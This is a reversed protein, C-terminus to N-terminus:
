SVKVIKFRLCVSLAWFRASCKRSSDTSKKRISRKVLSEGLLQATLPHPPSFYPHMGKITFPSFPSRSLRDIKFFIISNQLRSIWERVGHEQFFKQAWPTGHFTNIFVNGEQNKKKKEGLWVKRQGHMGQRSQTGLDELSLHEPWFHCNYENTAKSIGSPILIKLIGLWSFLVGATPPWLWKRGGVCKASYLNQVAQKTRRQYPQPEKWRSVVGLEGYVGIGVPSMARKGVCLRLM